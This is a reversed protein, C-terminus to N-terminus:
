IFSLKEQLVEEPIFAWSTILVSLITTAVWEIFRRLEYASIISKGAEVNYIMEQKLDQDDENDSEENELNM